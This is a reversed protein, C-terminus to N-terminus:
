NGHCFKILFRGIIKNAIKKVSPLSNEKKKKPLTEPDPVPDWSEHDLPGTGSESGIWLAIFKGKKKKQLTEPDPVPDWSEHDLPGTGSESGIRHPSDRPGTTTNIPYYCRM